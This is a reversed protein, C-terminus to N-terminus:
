LKVRFLPVLARLKLSMMYYRKLNIITLNPHPLSTELLLKILNLQSNLGLYKERHQREICM